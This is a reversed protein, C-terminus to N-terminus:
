GNRLMATGGERLGFDLWDDRTMKFIFLKIDGDQGERDVNWRLKRMVRVSALNRSQVISLIHNLDTANFAHDVTARLAETIFGQQWFPKLLAYRLAAEGSSLWFLGSEGIFCRDLERFIAWIGLGRNQWAQVYGKLIEKSQNRTRRGLKTYATVKSDAYLPAILDLDGPHYPRMWLRKTKLEPVDLQRSHGGGVNARPAYIAGHFNSPEPRTIRVM